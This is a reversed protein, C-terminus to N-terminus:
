HSQGVSVWSDAVSVGSSPLSGSVILPTQSQRESSQVGLSSEDHETKDSREDEAPPRSADEDGSADVYSELNANSAEPLGFLSIGEFSGVSERRSDGGASVSSAPATSIPRDDEFQGGQRGKGRKVTDKSANSTDYASPHGLARRWRLLRQPLDLVEDLAWLPLFWSAIAYTGAGAGVSIRYGRLYLHFRRWTRLLPQGPNLYSLLTPSTTPYSRYSYSPILPLITALLADVDTPQRPPRPSAKKRRKSVSSTEDSVKATPFVRVLAAEYEPGYARRESASWANTLAVVDIEEEKKSSEVVPDVVAGVDVLIVNTTAGIERRLVDIGKVLGGIAMARAGDFAVGVLSAIAPVLFMVTPTCQGLKSSRGSGLGQRGTSVRFLPLIGQLVALPTIHAEYIMPLLASSLDLRELPTPTQQASLVTPSLSLLSIFTTLINASPPSPAGRQSTSSPSTGTPLYPDGPTNLPYRLSLAANLSRLFYPVSAPEKPNLVLAKVCGKSKKELIDVGDLTSVSAIVVYGKKELAHVLAPGILTDGGLVVVVEKRLKLKENSEKRRRVGARKQDNLTWYLWAGYGAGLGVGIIGGAIAVRRRTVEDDIFGLRYWPIEEPPPTIATIPPSPAPIDFTGLGPVTVTSPWTTFGHRQLDSLIHQYVAQAHGPLSHLYENLTMIYEEIDEPTPLM